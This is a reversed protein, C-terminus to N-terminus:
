GLGEIIRVDRVAGGGLAELAAQYAESEYAAVAAAVSDFRIVATRELSGEEFAAGPIGRALFTGGAAAIAPGALRVYAQVRDTDRVERVTNVWYADPMAVM